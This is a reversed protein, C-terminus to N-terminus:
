FVIYTCQRIILVPLLIGQLKYSRQLIYELLDPLNDLFSPGIKKGAKSINDKLCIIKQFIINDEKCRYIEPVLSCYSHCSVILYKFKKPLYICTCFTHPLIESM